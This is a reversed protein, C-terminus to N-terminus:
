YWYSGGAVVVGLLLDLKNVVVLTHVIVGVVAICDLVLAVHIRLRHLLNCDVVVM